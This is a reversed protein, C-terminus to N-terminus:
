EPLPMDPWSDTVGAQVPRELYTSLAIYSRTGTVGAVAHIQALFAELAQPSAARVKFLLSADGAVSHMEEVEPFQLVQMLRESKGWGAAEVHVFALLPKGLAAGDLAAHVGKIAGSQRLRRVREHVAPASLGVAEGLRAYSQSSDAALAALIRRDFADIVPQQRRGQRLDETNKAMGCVGREASSYDGISANKM